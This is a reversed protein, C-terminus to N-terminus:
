STTNIDFIKLFKVIIDKFDANEDAQSDLVRSAAATKEDFIKLALHVKQREINTPNVATNTLLSALKLLNGREKNYVDELISFDSKINQITM